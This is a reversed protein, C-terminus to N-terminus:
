APDLFENAAFLRLLRLFFLQRYHPSADEVSDLAAHMVLPRDIGSSAHAASERAQDGEEKKLKKRRKQPWQKRACTCRREIASTICNDTPQM